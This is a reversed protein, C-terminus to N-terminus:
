IKCVYHAKRNCSGDHWAKSSLWYLACHEQGAHNNPEGKAWHIFHPKRGNSMAVFHNEKQLDTVGLWVGQHYGRIHSHLDLWKEERENQLELVAGGKDHCSVMADKFSVRNHSFFYCNREFDIWGKECRKSGEIGKLAVAILWCASFFGFGLM